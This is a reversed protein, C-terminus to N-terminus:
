VRLYMHFSSLLFTSIKGQGFSSIGVFVSFFTIVVDGPSISGKRVQSAGYSFAVALAAFMVFYTSGLAIGSFVAKKVGLKYAAELHKEYRKAESEQGNYSTVTKIQSIVESAVAGAAGYAGQTSSTAQSSLTGFLTATVVIFPAISFIVLTLRWSYLLAVIIGTFLTSMYQVGTTIKDGIGAEILHVDGAVRATLEGGENNDYWACDQRLLSAFYLRRLRNCVSQAFILQFHVQAFSSFFSVAGLIIFWKANKGVESTIDDLTVIRSADMPHRYDRFVDVIAGFIITFIPLIAGHIVAGVIAIAM